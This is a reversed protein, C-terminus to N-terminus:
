SQGGNASAAAHPADDSIEGMFPYRWDTAPLLNEKITRMSVWRSLNWISTAKDNTGSARSGGFPQLGVVSGTPKDNIYFNGATYRLKEDAEAVAYRDRAFVAGTLGYPSQQDVQELVGAWDRDPYVFTTMIPGFLEDRLLRFDPQRTRVITPSVFYGVSDDTTGGVVIDTGDSSRADAIARDHKAFADEDIVAGVFVDPRTPDGVRMQEVEAVLREQLADWHSEPVYLRSPASCKQGQFEFAGRVVATAVADIDATPHAVIFDKGGTEGVLRPYNRYTKLNGAVTQWIHQFTETSGTFHVGALDRHALAVDGIEPGDGFVLNIVGPPLGAEELLRLMYWAVLEAQEAPKWVVVNGMIAPAYAINALCAFNFPTIALVFGELPRYETRNWQGPLSDPQMGYMERMYRANFTLYDVTECAADIEAERPTKSLNLMTAANLTARWPGRVMEAARLFIAARDEWAMRSWDHHAEAAADIAREVEGAGGWHAHALPEGHSHPPVVAHLRGTEVDEGGIRLPLEPTEGRIRRLERELAERESSGPAYGREPENRTPPLVFTAPASPKSM